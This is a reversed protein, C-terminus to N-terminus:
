SACRRRIWESLTIGAREAQHEWRRRDEATVRLKVLKTATDDGIPPRGAGRKKPQKTMEKRAM